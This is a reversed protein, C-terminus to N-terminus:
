SRDTGQSVLSSYIPLHSDPRIVHYGEKLEEFLEFHLELCVHETM